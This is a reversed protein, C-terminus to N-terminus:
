FGRTRVNHSVGHKECSADANTGAIPVALSRKYTGYISMAHTSFRQALDDVFMDRGEETGTGDVECEGCDGGIGAPPPLGVASSLVCGTGDM